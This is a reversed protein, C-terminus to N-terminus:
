GAAARGLGEWVRSVESLYSPEQAPPPSGGSAHAVLADMSALNLDVREELISRGTADPAFVRDWLPVDPDAVTHENSNWVVPGGVALLSLIGKQFGSTLRYGALYRPSGEPLVGGESLESVQVEFTAPVGDRVDAEIITFPPRRRVRHIRLPELRGLARKLIDVTAYLFRDALMVRLFSLDGNAKPARFREAFARSAALDAFHGNIHFCAGSESATNLAESVFAAPYPHECLVHIGRRLLDLVVDAGSRGLAACAMFVDGPLDGPDTYLPVGLSHATRRARESGRALIGVVEFADPAKRVAKLYARGYNVGGILVRTRRM